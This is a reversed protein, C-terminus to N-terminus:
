QIQVREMNHLEGGRGVPLCAYATRCVSVARLTDFLKGALYIM